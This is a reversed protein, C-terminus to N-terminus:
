KGGSSTAKDSNISCVVDLLCVSIVRHIIVMSYLKFKFRLNMPIFM